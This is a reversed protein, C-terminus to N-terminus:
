GNVIITLLEVISRDFLTGSNEDLYSLADAIGIRRCEMGSAMCDFADCVQIIRCGDESNKQKLPYGSGDMREHHSLVMMKAQKPIWDEEELATFGLVTHKKFEFLDTDSREELSQNVYNTTIYRLGIDHLLAGLAIERQEKLSLHLRKTILISLLATDITHEYLDADHERYVYTGDEMQTVCEEALPELKKLSNKEGYIHKELINQLRKVYSEKKRQFVSQEGDEESDVTVVSEIGLTRLTEIYEPKIVSGAPILVDGNVIVPEGLVEKGELDHLRIVGM